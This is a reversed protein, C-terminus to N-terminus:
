NQGRYAERLGNTENSIMNLFHLNTADQVLRRQKEDSKLCGDMLGRVKEKGAGRFRGANSM